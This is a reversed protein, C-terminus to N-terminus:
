VLTAPFGDTPEDLLDLQQIKLNRWATKNDLRRAIAESVVLNGSQSEFVSAGGEIDKRLLYRKGIASYWTRRCEQCIRFSSRADGRVLITDKNMITFVDSLRKRGPGFVAGTSLANEYGEPFMAKLLDVSAFHVHIGHIFNLASRDPTSQLVVDIARGLPRASSCSKCLITRKAEEYWEKDPTQPNPSVSSVQFFPTM